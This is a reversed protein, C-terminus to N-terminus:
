RLYERLPRLVLGSERCTKLVKSRIGDTLSLICCSEPCEPYRRAEGPMLDKLEAYRPDRKRVFGRPVFNPSLWLWERNTKSGFLARYIPYGHGWRDPREFTIDLIKSLRSKANKITGPVELV